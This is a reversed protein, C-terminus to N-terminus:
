SVRYPEVGVMIVFQHDLIPLHLLQGTLHCM